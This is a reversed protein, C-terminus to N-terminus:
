NERAEARFVCFYTARDVVSVFVADTPYMREKFFFAVNQISSIPVKGKWSGLPRHPYRLDTKSPIAFMGLVHLPCVFDFDSYAANCTFKWRLVELQLQYTSPM